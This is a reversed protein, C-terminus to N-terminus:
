RTRLYFSGPQRDPSLFPCVHQLETYHEHKLYNLSALVEYRDSNSLLAELLYQENWFRMHETRFSTPYDFPTFIDHIHVVVGPKLSPLLTLYEFLVDGEPRIMHSSDIFLFDGEGLTPLGEFGIEELPKRIVDLRDLDELWPKLYPEVCCHSGIISDARENQKLASSLLITSWGGGIEVVQRPKLWRVFAYLFEADGSEFSENKLTFWHGGEVIEGAMLRDSFETGDLAQLLELQHDVRLDVGPLVRKNATDRTFNRFKPEDYVDVLPFLGVTRVAALSRPVRHMPLSRFARLVLGAITVPALFLLDAALAVLDRAKRPRRVARSM